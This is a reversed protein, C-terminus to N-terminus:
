KEFICKEFVCKEFVAAGGTMLRARSVHLDFLVGATVNVDGVHAGHMTFNGVLVNADQVSSSSSASWCLWCDVCPQGGVPTGLDYVASTGSVAQATM